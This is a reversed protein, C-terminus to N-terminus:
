RAHLTIIRGPIDNKIVNTIEIKKYSNQSKLNFFKIDRYRLKYCINLSIPIFRRIYYKIIFQKEHLMQIIIKCDM